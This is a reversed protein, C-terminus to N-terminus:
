RDPGGFPVLPNEALAARDARDPAPAGGLFADFLDEIKHPAIDRVICVIRTRHDADPWRALRAPPHFLHQVGHVVIPTDPMEAIKVVGKLRLMNPGHMSRVLEIFMDFLSAPIAADTAFSFARIRDDHRNVDHHGADRRHAHAHGHRHAEGDGAQADRAGAYAEEALWRTVDPIRSKPDFLGCDVLRAANAEGTAADLIPAAPNLARLRATLEATQARAADSTALDTKTLVLRDALAVQKIAEVQADLTAMGNVADVVTVIGDLRFRQSLYPHVMTTHVVPAPDALGTTEIVVRRFALRGNDLDRLLKELADILDGRM